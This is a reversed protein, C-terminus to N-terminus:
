AGGKKAQGVQYPMWEAYGYVENGDKDTPTVDGEQLLRVSTKPFLKGYVDIIMLNVLEDDHVAIVTADLPARKANGQTECMAAMPAPGTQDYVSARYWVKRGVSPKIVHPAPAADDPEFYYGVCGDQKVLVSSPKQGGLLRLNVCQPGWVKTVQGPVRDGGNSPTFWGKQGVELTM